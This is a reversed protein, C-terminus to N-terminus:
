ILKELEPESIGLKKAAITISLLGEKVLEILTDQKGEARGEAKRNEIFEAENYETLSMDVVGEKHKRFFGDLYNLKIAEDVAKDVASKIDTEKSYRKVKAVYSSYEYLAKCRELLEKNHGMNINLMTATWEYAGSNDANEFAASLQLELKDPKDSERNYFVVYKPTPIRVITSSYIDKKKGSLIQRYLDAFYMMGRLPMNPNYSSQQEYLNLESDLLFAIDNKQKIYIVDDLTVIEIENVDSYDSGNVANYLSLLYHKNEEAGFIFRFLRDKYERNVKVDANAEM